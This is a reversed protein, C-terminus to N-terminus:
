GALNGNGHYHLTHRQRIGFEGRLALDRYGNVNAAFEADAGARNEFPVFLGALNENPTGAAEGRFMDMLYEEGNLRRVGASEGFEFFARAAVSTFAMRAM